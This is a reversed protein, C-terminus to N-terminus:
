GAGNSVDPYIMLLDPQQTSSEIGMYIGFIVKVRHYSKWLEVFAKQALKKKKIEGKKELCGGM